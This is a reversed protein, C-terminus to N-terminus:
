IILINLCTTWANITIFPFPTIWLSRFGYFISIDLPKTTLTASKPQALFILATSIELISLKEKSLPVGM